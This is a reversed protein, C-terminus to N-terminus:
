SLSGLLAGHLDEYPAHPDFQPLHLDTSAPSLVGKPASLEANLANWSMGQGPPKPRAATPARPVAAGAPQNRLARAYMQDPNMGAARLEDRMSLIDDPSLDALKVHDAGLFRAREWATMQATKVFAFQFRSM